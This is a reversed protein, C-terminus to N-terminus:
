GPVSFHKEQAESLHKRATQQGVMLLDLNTKPVVGHRLADIIDRASKKELVQEDSNENATWQYINTNQVSKIQIYKKNNRKLKAILEAMHAKHLFWGLKYRTVIRALDIETISKAEKLVALVVKEDHQLDSFEIEIQNYGSPLSVTENNIALDPTVVNPKAETEILAKAPSTEVDLSVTAPVPVPIYDLLRDVLEQKSGSVPFSLRRCLQALDEKRLYNFVSRESWVSDTIRKVREEKSGSTMMSAQYLIDYLQQGTLSFLLKTYIGADMERLEPVTPTFTIPDAVEEIQLDKDKDFHEIINTIVTNKAGSIQITERRCLERLSELHVVGLVESPPILSDMIRDAMADKSGSVNLAHSSLVLALDEKTLSNLLRKFSDDMIEIGFTKRIQIAVEDAVAYKDDYGLLIGTALLENRAIYFEREIDWLSLIGPDHMLIFHERDWIQLEQKVVELIHAESKDIISDNEWAKKLIKIYLQYNKEHLNQHQEARQSFTKVNELVKEFFGEAPMVSESAQLILNLIAYVPPKGYLIKNSIYSQSGLASIIEQVIIPQPLRLTVTEDVKDAAIQDLLATDYKGLIHMLKM